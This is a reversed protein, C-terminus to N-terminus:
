RSRFRHLLTSLVGAFGQRLTARLSRTRNHAKLLWYWTPSIVILWGGAWLLLNDILFPEPGFVHFPLGLIWAVVLPIADLGSQVPWDLADPARTATLLGIDGLVRPVLGNIAAVLENGSEVMSILSLVPLKAIFVALGGAILGDLGRHFDGQM